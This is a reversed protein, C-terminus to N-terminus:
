AGQQGPLFLGWNFNISLTPSVGGWLPTGVNISLSNGATVPLLFSGRLIGFNTQLQQEMADEANGQRFEIAASANIEQGQVRRALEVGVGGDVAFESTEESDLSAHRVGLRSRIGYEAGGGATGGTRRGFSLGAFLFSGSADEVAGMTPDGHDFRIDMGFYRADAARRVNALEQRLRRAEDVDVELTVPAGCSATVAAESQGSILASACGAVDPAAALSQRVKETNRGARSIWSRTLTRAGDWVASGSSIGLVNIRLRAGYYGPGSAQEDEGGRSSLDTVPVFVTLDAFRSYQALQRSAADGLFLIVPNLGLAALADDGADTGVAAITGAAVGAPQVGPLAHGQAPTGGLAPQQPHQAQLDRASFVTGVAADEDRLISDAAARVAPSMTAVMVALTHCPDPGHRSVNQATLAAACDAPSQGQAPTVVSLLAGALVLGAARLPRM